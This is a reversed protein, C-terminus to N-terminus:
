QAINEGVEAPTMIPALEMNPWSQIKSRSFPRRPRTCALASQATSASKPFTLREGVLVAVEMRTADVVAVGEGLAEEEAEGLPLGEASGEGADGLLEGDRM